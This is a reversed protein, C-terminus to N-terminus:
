TLMINWIMEVELLIKNNSYKKAHTMYEVWVVMSLTFGNNTLGVPLLSLFSEM